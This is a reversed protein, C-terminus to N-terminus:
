RAGLGLGQLLRAAQAGHIQERLFDLPLTVCVTLSLKLLLQLPDESYLRVIWRRQQLQPPHRCLTAFCLRQVGDYSPNAGQGCGPRRFHLLLPDSQLSRSCPRIRPRRGNADCKQAVRQHANRAETLAKGYNLGGCPVLGRGKGM